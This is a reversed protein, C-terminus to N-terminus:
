ATVKNNKLWQEKNGKHSLPITYLGEMEVQFYWKVNRIHPDVLMNNVQSHTLKEKLNSFYTQFVSSKISM